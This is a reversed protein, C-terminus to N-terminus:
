AWIPDGDVTIDQGLLIAVDLDDFHLADMEIIIEAYSGDSQLIKGM